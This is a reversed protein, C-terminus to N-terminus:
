IEYMNGFSDIINRVQQAIENRLPTKEAIWLVQVLQWTPNEKM